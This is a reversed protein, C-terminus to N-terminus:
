RNSRPRARWTSFEYHCVLRQLDSSKARELELATTMQKVKAKGELDLTRLSKEGQELDHHLSSITSRDAMQADELQLVRDRESNLEIQM